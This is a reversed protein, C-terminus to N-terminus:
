LVSKPSEPEKRWGERGGDRGRRRVRVQGLRHRDVNKKTNSRLSGNVYM